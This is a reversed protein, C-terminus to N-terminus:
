LLGANPTPAKPRPECRPVVTSRSDASFSDPGSRGSTVTLTRILNFSPKCTRFFCKLIRGGKFRRLFAVIGRLYVWSLRQKFSHRYLSQFNSLAYIHQAIINIHVPQDNLTGFNSSSQRKLELHWVLCPCKWAISVPKAKPRLSSEM